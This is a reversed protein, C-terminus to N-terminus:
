PQKNLGRWPSRQRSSRLQSNKDLAAAEPNSCYYCWYKGTWHQYTPKGLSLDTEYVGTRVPKVEPPFWPTLDKETYTTM